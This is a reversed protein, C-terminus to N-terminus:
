LEPAISPVVCVFVLTNAGTNRIQHEASAPILVASGAKVSYQRSDCIVEGEGSHFFIEHEWPHSHRPTNGEAGVEFIRMCFNAAGDAKGILVRGAVKKATENDFLTPAVDTYEIAKM